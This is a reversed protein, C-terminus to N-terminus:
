HTKDGFRTTKSCFRTVFESFRTVKGRGYTPRCRTPECWLEGKIMWLGSFTLILFRFVNKYRTQIIPSLLSSSSCQKQAFLPNDLLGLQQNTTRGKDDSDIINDCSSKDPNFAAPSSFSDEDDSDSIVVSSNEAKMKKNKSTKRKLAVTLGFLKNTAKATVQGKNIPFHNVEKKKENEENSTSSSSPRILGFIQQEYSFKDASHLASLTFYTVALNEFFCCIKPRLSLLM